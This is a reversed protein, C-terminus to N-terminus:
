QMDKVDVSVVASMGPTIRSEYGKVSNPDLLIKVPIRQVIKTFNGTANDPPLLTFESGSAPSLSNVHGVFSRGSFADIKVEVEQGPHMKGVQTEKFNAVVWLDNGVVAMLPQGAQVRNGVEVTKRGIRGAVPATINAYSLQLQADNLSAQAQTVAANAAAYQRRNVETQNNGAQAQQLNGQSASLNAQAQTVGQQAQALKAQAQTVGQQAAARQAVATDYAARSADLQQRSVAGSNFLEQYRNYDAAVKALNAEAQALQAQAVPVGAQAERVAAQATAIAAVAQSINGQAQTTKGETTQGSLAIGAQATEAQRQAVALAAQAQQVKVQYDKPDIQALLQGAKVQQNDDVPVAAITGAIRSSVQYIHGSVTANDTEQHSSAYRWWNYGFGGAVVAGVGLAM